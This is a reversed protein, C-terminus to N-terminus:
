FIIKLFGAGHRKARLRGAAAKRADAAASHADERPQACTGHMLAAVTQAYALRALAADASDNSCAEANAAVPGSAAKAGRLAAEHLGVTFLRVALVLLRGNQLQALASASEGPRVQSEVRPRTM